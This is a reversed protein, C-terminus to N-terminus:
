RIAAPPGHAAGRHNRGVQFNQRNEHRQEGTEFDLLANVSTRGHNRAGPVTSPSSYHHERMYLNAWGQASVTLQINRNRHTFCLTLEGTEFEDMFGVRKCDFSQLIRTIEKRARDGSTARAYPITM